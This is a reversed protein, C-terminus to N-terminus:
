MAAIALAIWGTPTARGVPSSGSAPPPTVSAGGVAVASGIPMTGSTPVVRAVARDLSGEVSAEAGAQGDELVDVEVVETGKMGTWSSRSVVDSVGSPSSREVREADGWRANELLLEHRRRGDPFLAELWEAVEARDVADGIRGLTRLLDRGLERASAYREDPDRALAKLVVADLEPPALASRESPPSIPDGLLAVLTEAPTDRRFLRQFALMEWLVVGLSFVDARRDVKKGRAQEPAMYAFKGKVSGDMTQHVRDSASAIGFDVVKTNGDFAVFLNQPSIDRHVVNLYEGDRGRLEHAAHLGECADAVLRACVFSRRPHNRYDSKSIVRQFKGLTEGVLFEMAIFYAGDTEGFDFVQCVNPHEIRSAIRAEDLFMEVFAPDTALHPHVRKLAVFKEFGAAGSMRALYVTAMGGSAIEAGMEYRGVRAVPAPKAADSM